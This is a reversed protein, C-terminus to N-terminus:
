CCKLILEAVLKLCYGIVYSVMTKLLNLLVEPFTFLRVWISPVPFM